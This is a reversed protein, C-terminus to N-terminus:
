SAYFKYAAHGSENELSSDRPSTKQESTLSLLETQNRNKITVTFLAFKELNVFIYSLNYHM